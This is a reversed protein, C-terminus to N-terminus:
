LANLALAEPYAAAIKAKFADDWLPKVEEELELIDDECQRHAVAEVDGMVRILNGGVIKEVDGEPIQNAILEAVLRPFASTDSLGLVARAMGDFDSGIGVHDYGILEGVYIIHKVVDMLSSLGPDASSFEPVFSIMILGKNSKLMHLINDKVNRPHPHVGFASSHSFIIPARTQRLVDEATQESTHSLDIIMGLRNMEQIIARGKISLGNHVPTKATASDAYANNHNHTLTAYRVGLNYFMRLVSPSNGIQHLGEIGLLSAIKGNQFSSLIGSSTTALELDDPYKKILRLILDIQQLTERITELYSDDNFVNIKDQAPCDVYASWFTGGVLGKRLKKIDVHGVLSEERSFNRVHIKNSYYGRIINAWDNHGDILPVRSLLNAARELFENGPESKM